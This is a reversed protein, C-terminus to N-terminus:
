NTSDENKFVQKGTSLNSFLEIDPIAFKDQLKGFVSEILNKIKEDTIDGAVGIVLNNKQFSKKHFNLIDQRNLNELSKITGKINRKFIHDGFFINM